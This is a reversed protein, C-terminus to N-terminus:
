YFCLPLFQSNRDAQRDFIKKSSILFVGVHNFAKLKFHEKYKCQPQSQVVVTLLALVNEQNANFWMDELVSLALKKLIRLIHFDSTRKGVWYERFAEELLGHGIYQIDVLGTLFIQLSDKQFIYTPTFFKSSSHLCMAFIVVEKLM